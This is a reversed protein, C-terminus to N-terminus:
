VGGPVDTVWSGIRVGGRGIRVAVDASLRVDHWDPNRTFLLAGLSRNDDAWGAKEDFAVWDGRLIPVVRRRVYAIEWDEPVGGSFEQLPHDDSGRVTVNRFGVNCPHNNFSPDGAIKPNYGLLATEGLVRAEEPALIPLHDAFPEEDTRQLEGEATYTLVAVLGRDESALSLARRGDAMVATSFSAAPSWGDLPNTLLVQEEILAGTLTYLLLRVREPGAVLAALRGAELYLKVREGDRLDLSWQDEYRHFRGQGEPSVVEEGMDTLVIVRYSYEISGVLGSDTFTTDSVDALKTVDQWALEGSKRQVQYGQFRPGQYLTWGMTASATGSDLDLSQWAVAPLELTGDLSGSLLVQGAAAVAVTYIYTVRHRATTDVFATDAVTSASRLLTDQGGEAERRLVAYSSFGPDRFQTWRLRLAGIQEDSEIPLLTVAGVSYGAVSQRDSPSEYGNINVVVVRYDYATGPALAADIYTTKEVSTLTDLAVWQEKDQVKRQVICLALTQDGAYPTWTLTVAGTSDSLSAVLEVPPTLEPDLPNERKAEHSCGVLLIVLCLYRM